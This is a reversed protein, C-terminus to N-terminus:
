NQPHRALETNRVSGTPARMLAVVHERRPDLVQHALVEVQHDLHKPHVLMQGSKPERKCVRSKQVSQNSTRVNERESGEAVLKQEDDGQKKTGGGLRMHREDYWSPMVLGPKASEQVSGLGHSTEEESSM